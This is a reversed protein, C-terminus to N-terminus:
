RLRIGALVANELTPDTGPDLIYQIDPQQGLWPRLETPLDAEHLPKRLVNERMKETGPRARPREPPIATLLLTM